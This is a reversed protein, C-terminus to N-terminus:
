FWDIEDYGMFDCLDCKYQVLSYSHTRMHKKLQKKDNLILDCFSCQQPFEKMDSVTTDKHKKGIHSKLGAESISSFTCLDCKFKASPISSVKMKEMNIKLRNELDLIKTDKEELAKRQLEIKNELMEFKNEVKKSFESFAVSESEDSEDYVHSYLCIEKIKFNCRPGFKCPNLYRLPCKIDFCNM